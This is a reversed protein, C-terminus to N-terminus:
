QELIISTFRKHSPLHSPHTCFPSICWRSVTYSHTPEEALTPVEPPPACQAHRRPGTPMKFWRDPASSPSQRSTSAVFCQPYYRWVRCSPWHFNKGKFSYKQTIMESHRFMAWILNVFATVVTASSKFIHNLFYLVVFTLVCVHRTTFYCM